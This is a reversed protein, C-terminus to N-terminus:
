MNTIFSSIKMTQNNLLALNVHSQRTFTSAAYAPKLNHAM